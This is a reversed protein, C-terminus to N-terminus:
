AARRRQPEGPVQHEILAPLQIVSPGTQDQQPASETDVAANDAPDTVALDIEATGLVCALHKESDFIKLEDEEIFWVASHSDTYFRRGVYFDDRILLTERVIQAGASQPDSEAIWSLLRNRITALRQSNTM